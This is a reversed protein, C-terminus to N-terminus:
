LKLLNQTVRTKSFSHEPKIREKLDSTLLVDVARNSWVTLIFIPKEAAANAVNQGRCNKPASPLQGTGSHKIADQDRSVLQWYGRGLTVAM